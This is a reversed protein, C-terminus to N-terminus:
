WIAKMMGSTSFWTTALPNKDTVKMGIKVRWETAPRSSSAQSANETIRHTKPAKASAATPTAIANAGCSTAKAAGPTDSGPTSAAATRM